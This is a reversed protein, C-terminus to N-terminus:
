SGLMAALGSSLDRAALTAVEGGNASFRIRPAAVSEKSM